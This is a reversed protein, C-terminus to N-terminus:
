QAACRTAAATDTDTATAALPALLLADHLAAGEGQAEGDRTGDKVVNHALDLRRPHGREVHGRQEAVGGGRRLDDIDVDGRQAERDGVAVAEGGRGGDRGHEARGVRCAVVVLPTAAGEDLDVRVNHLLHVAHLAVRVAM